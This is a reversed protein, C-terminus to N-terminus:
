PVCELMDSVPWELKLSSSFYSEELVDKNNASRAVYDEKDSVNNDTWGWKELFYLM